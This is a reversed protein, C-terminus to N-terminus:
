GRRATVTVARSYTPGGTPNSWALRVRGSRRVAVRTQLYGHPDTTTV